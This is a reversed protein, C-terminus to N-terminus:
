WALVGLKRLYLAGWVVPAVFLLGDVRDLLGGHGPILQSSDKVGFHRKVKSEFLDGIQALVALGASIGALRWDDMAFGFGVGAACLMGGLLGAWTKNPSIAPALKPGGIGRGFIYGGIDTAWIVGFLWFITMAGSPGERLALLALSPLGVYLLGGLSWVLALDRFFLSSAAVSLFLLLVALLIAEPRFQLIALGVLTAIVLLWGTKGCTGGGTLSAWEWALIAAGCAIMLHYFPWGVWIAGLALPLMVLASLIRAGLVAPATREVRLPASAGKAAM